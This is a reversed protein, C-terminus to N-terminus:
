PCTRTPRLVVHHVNGTRGRMLARRSAARQCSYHDATIGTRQFYPGARYVVADRPPCTYDAAQLSSSGPSVAPPGVVDPGGGGGCPSPGLRTRSGRRGRGFGCAPAAGSGGSASREHDASIGCGPARVFRPMSDSSEKALQAMWYVEEETATVRAPGSVKLLFNIDTNRIKQTSHM